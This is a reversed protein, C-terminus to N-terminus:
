SDTQAQARKAGVGFANARYEIEQGRQVIEDLKSATTADKHDVQELSKWRQQPKASRMSIQTPMTSLASREERAAAILGQLDDTQKQAKGGGTLGKIADLM